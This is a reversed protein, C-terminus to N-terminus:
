NEKQVVIKVVRCVGTYYLLFGCDIGSKRQTAQIAWSRIPVMSINLKVRKIYNWMAPLWKTTQAM